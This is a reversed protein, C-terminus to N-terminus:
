YTWENDNFESAIGDADLLQDDNHYHMLAFAKDWGSRYQQVSSIVLANNRVEMDVIEEFECQDFTSKPIRIVQSNGIKVLEAKM